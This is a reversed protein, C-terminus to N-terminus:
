RGSGVLTMIQQKMMQAKAEAEDLPLANYDGPKIFGVDVLWALSRMSRRKQVLQFLEVQELQEAVIQPDVVEIPVGVKHLFTHAMFVHGALQPHVGDTSFAFDPNDVRQKKTFTLMPGNLDIVQVNEVMLSLLWSSYDSLVDNYGKYPFSYGFEVADAGVVKDAVVAADYISPTLIILKAGAAKIDAILKQIGDKYAQFREDSQPHYIGDNMGYCAIVTQPKIKKLARGLREHANPRPYSHKPETLGSVTESSLGISILDIDNKPYYKFLEYEIISVYRGDQTISDGLLMIRGNLMEPASSPAQCSVALFLLVLAFYMKKM